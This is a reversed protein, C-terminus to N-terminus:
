KRLPNHTPYEGKESSDHLGTMIHYGSHLYSTLARIYSIGASGAVARYADFQIRNAGLLFINDGKAWPFRNM